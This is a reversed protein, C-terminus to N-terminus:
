KVNAYLGDGITVNCGYQFNFPIEIVPKDGIGRLVGRLADGRKSRLAQYMKEEPVQPDDPIRDLNYEFCFKRARLKRAQLEPSCM